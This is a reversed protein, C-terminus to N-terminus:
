SADSTWVWIDVQGATALDTNGSGTATVKIAVAASPSESALSALAVAQLARAADAVTQFVNFASLYKNLTGTIGVQITYTTLGGGAFATSHKIQVAHIIHGKPLSFLDITKTTAAAALQAYTLTFKRWRWGKMNVFLSDTTRDLVRQFIQTADRM